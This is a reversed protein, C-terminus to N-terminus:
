GIPLLGFPAKVLSFLSFVSSGEQSVESLRAVVAGHCSQLTCVHNKSEPIDAEPCNERNLQGRAPNAVNGPQDMSKSYTHGYMCVYVNNTSSYKLM